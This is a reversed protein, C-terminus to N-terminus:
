VVIINYLLPLSIDLIKKFKEGNGTKEPDQIFLPFESDRGTGFGSLRVLRRGPDFAGWLRGKDTRM